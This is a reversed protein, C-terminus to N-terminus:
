LGKEIAVQQEEDFQVEAENTMRQTELQESVTINDGFLAPEPRQDTTVTLVGDELVATTNSQPM